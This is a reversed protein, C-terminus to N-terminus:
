TELIVCFFLIFLVLSMLILGVEIDSSLVSHPETFNESGLIKDLKDFFLSSSIYGNGLINLFIYKHLWVLNWFWFIIFHISSTCINNKAKKYKQVFSRMKEKCQSWNRPPGVAKSSLAQAINVWVSKNRAM